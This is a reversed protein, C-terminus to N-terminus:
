RDEVPDKEDRLVDFTLAHEPVVSLNFIQEQLYRAAYPKDYGYTPMEYTRVISPLVIDKQPVGAVLRFAVTRLYIEELTRPDVDGHEFIEQGNYEPSLEHKGKEEIVVAEYFVPVAEEEPTVTLYYGRKGLEERLFYDYSNIFANRYVHPVLYVRDPGNLLMADLHDALDSAIAKWMQLSQANQEVSYEYGINEASVSPPNKHEDTHYAFLSPMPGPGSCAALSLVSLVPLALSFRM